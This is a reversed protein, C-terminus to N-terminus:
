VTMGKTLWQTLNQSIQLVWKKKQHILPHHVLSKMSPKQAIIDTHSETMQTQGILIQLSYIPMFKGGTEIFLLLTLMNWTFYPWTFSRSVKYIFQPWTIGTGTQSILVGGGNATNPHLTLHFFSASFKTKTAPTQKTRWKCPHRNPQARMGGSASVLSLRNPVEWQTFQCACIFDPRFKLQQSTNSCM